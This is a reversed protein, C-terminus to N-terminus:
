HTARRQMNIFASVVLKKRSVCRKATFESVVSTLCEILKSLLASAIM